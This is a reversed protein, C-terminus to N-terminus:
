DEKRNTISIKELDSLDVKVVKYIRPPRAAAVAAAAQLFSNSANPIERPRNFGLTIEWTSSYSDHKVEELTLNEIKEGRFAKLLFAKATQIALTLEDPKETEAEGM